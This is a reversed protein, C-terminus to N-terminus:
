SLFAPGKLRSTSEIPPITTFSSNSSYVDEFPINDSSKTSHDVDKGDSPNDTESGHHNFHFHEDMQFVKPYRQDLGYVVVALTVFSLITTSAVIAATQEVYINKQKAVGYECKAAAVSSCLVVAVTASPGLGLWHCMFWALIPMLILKFVTAGLIAVINKKFVGFDLDIGVAFLAVPATTAGLLSLTTDLTDPLKWNFASLVVGIVLAIFYPQHFEKALSKFFGVIRSEGPAGHYLDYILSMVQLGIILNFVGLIGYITGTRGMLLTLIPLAIMCTNSLSCTAAFFSGELFRMRCLKAVGVAVLFVITTILLFTGFFTAYPLYGEVPENALAVIIMSPIAVLMAYNILTNSQTSDFKGLRRFLYGGVVFLMIPLVVNMIVESSM